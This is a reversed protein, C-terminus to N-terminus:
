PLFLQKFPLCLPPHSVELLTLQTILPELLESDYLLSPSVQFSDSAEKLPSLLNPNEWGQHSRLREERGQPESNTDMKM